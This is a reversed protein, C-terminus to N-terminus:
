FLVIFLIWRDLYLFDCVYMITEDDNVSVRNIVDACRQLIESLFPKPKWFHLDARHLHQSLQPNFFSWCLFRLLAKEVEKCHPSQGVSAARKLHGQRSAACLNIISCKFRILVPEPWSKLSMKGPSPLNTILRPPKHCNFALVCYFFTKACYLFTVHQNILPDVVCILSTQCLTKNARGRAFLFLTM